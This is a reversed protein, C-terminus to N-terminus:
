RSAATITSLTNNIGSAAATNARDRARTLEHVVDTPLVCELRLHKTTTLARRIESTAQQDAATRAIITKNLTLSAAKADAALKESANITATLTEITAQQCTAHEARRAEASGWQFVAYHSAVLASLLVIILLIRVRLPIM